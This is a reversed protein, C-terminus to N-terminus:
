ETVFRGADKVERAVYSWIIEEVAAVRRQLRRMAAIMEFMRRGNRSSQRANATVSVGAQRMAALAEAMEPGNDPLQPVVARILLVRNQLEAVLLDVLAGAPTGADPDPPEAAAFLDLRRPDTAIEM